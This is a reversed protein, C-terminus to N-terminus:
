FLPRKAPIGNRRPYREACLSELRLVVYGYGRARWETAPGFGLETLAPPPWRAAVEHSGAARAVAYSPGEDPASGLPPPPESVVLAGGAVLFPAACEATVAPRGFSRAVVISQLHRLRASRGAIEAREGVVDVRESLGLEEVAHRLWDARRISGDLLIVRVKVPWGSSALVLGPLGGGAGLDLVQVIRGLTQGEHQPESVALAASELVAACVEAFGRAHELQREIPLGGLFGQDRAECLLSRLDDV